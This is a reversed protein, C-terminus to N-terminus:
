RGRFDVVTPPPTYRVKITTTFVRCIFKDPFILMRVFVCFIYQIGWFCYCKGPRRVPRRRSRRKPLRSNKAARGSRRRIVGTDVLPPPPVPARSRRGSDSRSCFRRPAPSTRPRPTRADDAATTRRRRPPPATSPDYLTSPFFSFSFSLFFFRFIRGAVAAGPQTKGGALSRRRPLSRALSRCADDAPLLAARPAASLKRVFGVVIPDACHTRLRPADNGRGCDRERSLSTSM